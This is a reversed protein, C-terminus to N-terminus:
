PVLKVNHILLVLVLFVPYIVHYVLQKIMNSMVSIAPSVIQIPLEMALLVPWMANVVYLLIMIIIDKFVVPVFLHQQVLAHRVCLIASAALLEVQTTIDM